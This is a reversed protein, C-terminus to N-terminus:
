TYDPNTESPDVVTIDWGAGTFTTNDMMEQTINGTGGDSSGQGSTQTDWFSNNVDGYLNQRVLGGIHEDGNVTSENRGVLGGVIYDDRRGNPRLSLHFRLIKQGNGTM